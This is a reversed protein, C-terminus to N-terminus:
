EANMQISDVSKAPFLFDRMEPWIPHHPKPLSINFMPCVAVSNANVKVYGDRGSLYPVLRFELFDEELLFFGCALVRDPFVAKASDIL